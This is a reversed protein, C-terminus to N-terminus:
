LGRGCTILWKHTVNQQLPFPVVSSKTRCITLCVWIFMQDFNLPIKEFTGSIYLLCSIWPTGQGMTQTTPDLARCVAKILYANSWFKTIIKWLTWSIHLPCLIWPLLMQSQVTVKLRQLQTMPKACQRMLLFVQIFYLSVLEFPKSSITCVGFELTFWMVKFQSRSRSNTYGLWLNQM